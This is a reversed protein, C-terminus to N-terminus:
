RFSFPLCQLINDLALLYVNCFIFIIERWTNLECIKCFPSFVMTTCKNTVVGIYFHFANTFFFIIQGKIEAKKPSPETDAATIDEASEETNDADDM